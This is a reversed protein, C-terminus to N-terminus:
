RRRLFILGDEGIIAAKRLCRGDRPTPGIFPGSAQAAMRSYQFGRDVRVGLVRIVLGVGMSEEPDEIM